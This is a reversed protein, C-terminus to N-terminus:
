CQLLTMTYHLIRYIYASLLVDTVYIKIDNLLCSLLLSFLYSKGGFGVPFHSMDLLIQNIIRFITSLAIETKM